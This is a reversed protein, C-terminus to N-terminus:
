NAVEMVIVQPQMSAVRGITLTSTLNVQACQITYTLSSTTHSDADVGSFTDYEFWSNVSSVNSSYFYRRSHKNNAGEYDTLRSPYSTTGDQVKKIRYSYGGDTTDNTIRSGIGFQVLFKSATSVPTFTILVSTDTWTNNTSTITTSGFSATTYVMQLVKGGSVGTLASGDIAPLAGTLKSADLSTTDRMSDTVKTTM